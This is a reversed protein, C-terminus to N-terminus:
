LYTKQVFLVANKSLIVRNMARLFDRGSDIM